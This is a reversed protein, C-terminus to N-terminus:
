SRTTMRVERVVNVEMIGPTLTVFTRLLTVSHRVQTPTDKHIRMLKPSLLTRELKM